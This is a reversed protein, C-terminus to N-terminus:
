STITPDIYLGNHTADFQYMPNVITQRIYLLNTNWAYIFVEDTVNDVGGLILDLFGDNNLDGLLPQHISTNGSIYLPWGEVPSGDLEIAQYRGRGEQQINEDFIIEYQNDNDIDAITLQNAIGWFPGHPFGEVMSGDINYAYIHFAPATSGLYDAVIIELEKDGDIDAAIPTSFMWFDSFNPWGPMFTGDHRILYAIGGASFIEDSLSCFAIELTDDNDIDVLLPASYSFIGTSAAAYAEIPFGPLLKGDKNWAYFKTLSECLVDMVGDNNIDGVSASSSTFGDMQYPWGPYISGDGKFIFMKGSRSGIVIELINDKDVDALVPTDVYTEFPIPFGSVESGDKEFACIMGGGFGGVGAVIEGEGDGDIDGFSPSWGIEYFQAFTKPWGPVSSGDLNVAYLNEGSGFVIEMDADSDM